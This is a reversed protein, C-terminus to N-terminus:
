FFPLGCDCCSALDTCVVANGLWCPLETVAQLMQGRLSLLSEWAWPQLSRNPCWKDCIHFLTLTESACKVHTIIPVPLGKPFCLDVWMQSRSAFLTEEGYGSFKGKKLHQDTIGRGHIGQLNEGRENSDWYNFCCLWGRALGLLGSKCIEGLWLWLNKRLERGM